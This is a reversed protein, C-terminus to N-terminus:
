LVRWFREGALFQRVLNDLTELPIFIRQGVRVSYIKEAKIWLYLTRRQIEYGTGACFRRIAQRPTLMVQPAAGMVSMDLPGSVNNNAESLAAMAALIRPIPNGTLLKPSAKRATPSKKDPHDM